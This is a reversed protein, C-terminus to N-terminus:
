VIGLNYKLAFIMGINVIFTCDLDMYLGIHGHRTSTYVICVFCVCGIDGRLDWIEGVLM